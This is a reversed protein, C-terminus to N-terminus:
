FRLNSADSTVFETSTFFNANNAQLSPIARILLFIAILGISVVITAGAGTALWRFLKDGFQHKGTSLSSPITPSTKGSHDPM